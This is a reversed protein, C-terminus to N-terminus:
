SAAKRATAKRPARKSRYADPRAHLAVFLAWPEGGPEPGWSAAEEVLDFLRQELDARREASVRL